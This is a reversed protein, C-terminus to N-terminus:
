SKKYEKWEREMEKAMNKAAKRLWKPKRARLDKLIRKTQRKTGLHVNAVESGMACLLVEEDRKIPLVEIEIPNSDPALRRILWPGIIKQFPDPSRVASQIIQRYYSQGHGDHGNLWVSAPPLMAKAERAIFGGDFQAIAVFRQQGLSGLGAERRVVKYKLNPRPLMKEIARRADSPFGNKVAPRNSLKRWFDEPFKMTDFGLEELATESEALVMPCGGMKLTQQYGELIAECATKLNITLEGLDIVIKVSAALRALDNTYPLPAAEDFDDIGWCLRGESDRWTGFSGVHVDGTALVIPASCLPPCIEPWLQAWRYYTGRFFLFLDKKMQQHKARLDSEVVTTCRRMWNDYSRTADKTNM